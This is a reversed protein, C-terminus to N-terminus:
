EGTRTELAIRFKARLQAKLDSRRSCDPCIGSVLISPRTLDPKEPFLVFLKDAPPVARDCTMCLLTRSAADVVWKRVAGAAYWPDTQQGTSSATHCQRIIDPTLDITGMLVLGDQAEEALMGFLARLERRAETKSKM